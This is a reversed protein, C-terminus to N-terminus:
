VEKKPTVSLAYFGLLAFWHEHTLAERVFEEQTCYWIDDTTTVRELAEIREETTTFVLVKFPCGPFLREYRGSEKFAIYNDLKKKLVPVHETGRDVEIFAAGGGYQIWADPINGLEITEQWLKDEGSIIRRVNSELIFKLIVDYLALTHDFTREARQEVRLRYENYESAPKGVVQWGRKGLFCVPTQFHEFTDARYRRDLYQESLMWLLTKTTSVRSLALVSQIQRRILFPCHDRLIRFLLIHSKQLQRM